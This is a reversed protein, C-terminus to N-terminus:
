KYKYIYICICIIYSISACKQYSQLHNLSIRVSTDQQSLHEPHWVTVHTTVCATGHTTCCCLLVSTSRGRSLFSPLSGGGGSSRGTSCPGFLVGFLVTTHLTMVTMYLVTFNWINWTFNRTFYRIFYRTFYRLTDRSLSTVTCKSGLLAWAQMRNSKHNHGILVELPRKSAASITLMHGDADTCARNPDNLDNGQRPSRIESQSEHRTMKQPLISRLDLGDSAVSLLLAIVQPKQIARKRPTDRLRASDHLM